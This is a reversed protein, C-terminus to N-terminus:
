IDIKVCNDTKDCFTPKSLLELFSQIEIKNQNLEAKFPTALDKTFEPMKFISREGYCSIVRAKMPEPEVYEVDISHKSIWIEEIEESTLGISKISLLEAM